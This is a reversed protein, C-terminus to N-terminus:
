FLIFFYAALSSPAVLGKDRIGKDLINSGLVVNAILLEDRDPAIYPAALVGCYEYLQVTGYQYMYTCYPVRSYSYSNGVTPQCDCRGQTKNRQRPPVQTRGM